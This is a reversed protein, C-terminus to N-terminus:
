SWSFAVNSLQVHLCPHHHTNIGGSPLQPLLMAVLELDSQAVYCSVEGEEVGWEVEDWLLAFLCVLFVKEWIHVRSVVPFCDGKLAPLWFLIQSPLHEQCRLLWSWKAGLSKRDGGSAKPCGPLSVPERQVWRPLQAFTNCPPWKSALRTRDM